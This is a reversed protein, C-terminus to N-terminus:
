WSRPVSSRASLFRVARPLADSNERGRRPPAPPQRSVYRVASFLALAPLSRWRHPPLCIFASSRFSAPRNEVRRLPGETHSAQPSLNEHPALKRPHQHESIFNFSSARASNFDRYLPQRQRRHRSRSDSGGTTVPPQNQGEVNGRQSCDFPSIMSVM